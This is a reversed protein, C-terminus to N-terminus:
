KIERSFGISHILACYPERTPQPDCPSVRLELKPKTGPHVPIHAFKAGPKDIVIKSLEAGNLLVTVTQPGLKKLMYDVATLHIDLQWDDRDELLFSYRSSTTIWAWDLSPNPPDVGADTSAGRPAPMGPTRDLVVTAFYPHPIAQPPVPFSLEQRCGAAILAPVCLGFAQLRFQM